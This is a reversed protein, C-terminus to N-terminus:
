QVFRENGIIGVKSFGSKQTMAMVSMLYKYPTKKGPKIHFEPQDEINSTKLANLKDQIEERSLMQGNWSTRGQENIEIYIITPSKIVQPPTTTPMNMAVAHMQPPITIILMVLLVLMVDILPTTNIEMIVDDENSHLNFAM